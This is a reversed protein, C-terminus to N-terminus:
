RREVVELVRQLRRSTDAQGYAVQRHIEVARLRELPSQAHWYARDRAEADDHLDVVDLKDRDLKM